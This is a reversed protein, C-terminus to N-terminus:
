VPRWRACHASQRLPVTPTGRREAEANVVAVMAGILREREDAPMVALGSHTRLHGALSPGDTDRIWPFTAWELEGPPLGDVEFPDDAPDAVFDRGATDPDLRALDHEWVDRPDPGNWVLGLWGGPRLVRRVEAVAREHPFWHWAQGALVADVSADPIPLAEAGALCAVAAPHKRRLVALMAPDPEVAVVDLGLSLLPGTLKGTGAGVDAVRVAGPPVLWAVADPPYSPRWREYDEARAGFTRARRPDLEEV